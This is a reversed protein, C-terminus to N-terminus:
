PRGPLDSAREGPLPRLHAKVPTAGRRSHLAEAQKQSPPPRPLNPPGPRDRTSYLNVPQSQVNWVSTRIIWIHRNFEFTELTRDGLEIAFGVIIENIGPAQASGDVAQLALEAPNETCAPLSAIM